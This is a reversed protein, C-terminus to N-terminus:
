FALAVNANAKRNKESVSERNEAVSERNESVPCKKSSFFIWSQVTRIVLLM